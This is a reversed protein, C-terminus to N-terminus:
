PFETKNVWIPLVLFHHLADSLFLAGGLILFWEQPYFWAVFILFIGLYGHHIRVKHRFKLKQYRIKMPGFFIRGGITFLEILFTALM